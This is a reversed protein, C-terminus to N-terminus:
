NYVPEDLDPPLNMAQLQLGLVYLVLISLLHDYVFVVLWEHLFEKLRAWRARKADVAPRSRHPDPEALIKTILLKREPRGASEPRRGGDHLLEDFYIRSDLKEIVDQILNIREQETTRYLIKVIEEKSLYGSNDLDFYKYCEHLLEGRSCVRLLWERFIHRVCYRDLQRSDDRLYAPDLAGVFAQLQERTLRQWGLFSLVRLVDEATGASGFTEVFFDYFHTLRVVLDFHTEEVFTQLNRRSRQQQDVAADAM